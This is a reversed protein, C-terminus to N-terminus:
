EGKELPPSKFDGQELPLNLPIKLERAMWSQRPGQTRRLGWIKACFISYYTMVPADGRGAAPLSLGHFNM